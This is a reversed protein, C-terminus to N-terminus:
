GFREIYEKITNRITFIKKNMNEIAKEQSVSNSKFESIADHVNSQLSFLMELIYETKTKM